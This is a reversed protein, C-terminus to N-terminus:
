KRIGHIQSLWLNVSKSLQFNGRRFSEDAFWKWTNQTDQLIINDRILLPSIDSFPFQQCYILPYYSSYIMKPQIYHFANELLQYALDNENNEHLIAATLSLDLPKELVVVRYIDIEAIDKAINLALDNRGAQQYAYALYSYFVPNTKGQQLSEEFQEIAIPYKGLSLAIKGKWYNKDYKARDSRDGGYWNDWQTDSTLWTTLDNSAEQMLKSHKAFISKNILPNIRLAQTYAYIASDKNDSKEEMYGLNLWFLDFKPAAKTAEKMSTIALDHEDYLWYLAALNAYQISWYPNIDIGTKQFTIAQNLSTTDPDSAQIQQALQHAIALGCEFSYLANGPHKKAVLCSDKQVSNWREHNALVSQNQIRTANVILSPLRIQYILLLFFFSIGFLTYQKRNINIETTKLSYRCALIIVLLSTIVYEPTVFMFDVLHQVLMSVGGVAYAVWFKSQSKNNEKIKKIFLYFIIIIAISFYFVGIVGYDVAIQLWLNHASPAFDGPPLQALKTYNVPFAAIGQGILPKEIFAEWSYRWITARGSFGRNLMQGTSSTRLFIGLSLLTVFGIGILFLNRLKKRPINEGNNTNPHRKRIFVTLVILLIGSITGLLAGRSNTYFIAISFLLLSISWLIKNQKDRAYYLRFFVIPWVFNIFGALPNPHNFISGSLRYRMLKPQPLYSLKGTIEFYNHIWVGIEVVSYISVIVGSIILANEWPKRSEDTRLSIYTLSSLLFLILMRQTFIFTSPTPLSFHEFLITYLIAVLIFYFGKSFTFQKYMWIQISFWILGIIIFMWGGIIPLSYPIIFLILGISITAASFLEKNFKM